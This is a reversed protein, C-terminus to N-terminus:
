RQPVLFRVVSDFKECTEEFERDPDSQGVIGAGAQLWTSGNARYMGRLVLAADMTGDHGVTLVSGGYLRRPGDEVDRICQYAADKPVGSATVAPFAAGFADWATRGPALLGTVRSSLHQVSGRERVTMFDEVAITEPLCARGLDEVAVKVSIAHEYVEKPDRLLNARLRENHADDAALARTGALAPAVVRGASDVGVVLEPSFGAAEIGGLRLLFSRAPTNGRRGALYTGVLDIDDDVMIRRSLIVKELPGDGIMDIARAVRRQYDAAGQERVRIPTSPAGFRARPGALAAAAAEAEAPDTSEVTAHGDRLRVRIRPIVLHLVRHDDTMVGRAAEALEFAAWGYARWQPIGAGDLLEQIRALPSEHWGFEVPEPWTRRVGARDAVIEAAAGGAFTWEGGTEYVVFEDHIGAAALRAVASLPDDPLSLTSDQYKTSFPPNM